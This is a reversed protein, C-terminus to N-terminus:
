GDYNHTLEEDTKVARLTVVEKDYLAINPNDSHNVYRFENTIELGETASMWMVYSGENKVSKGELLGLLADAPFDRLAFLGKGHIKSKAVYVNSAIQTRRGAKTNKPKKRNLKTKEKKKSDAKSLTSKPKRKNESVTKKVVM